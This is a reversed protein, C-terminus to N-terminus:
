QRSRSKAYEAISLRREMALRTEPVKGSFCSGVARASQLELRDRDRKYATSM